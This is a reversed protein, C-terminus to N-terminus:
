VFDAGPLYQCDRRHAYESCPEMLSHRKQELPNNRVRERYMGCECRNQTANGQTRQSRQSKGQPWQQSNPM